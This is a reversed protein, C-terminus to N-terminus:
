SGHEDKDQEKQENIAKIVTEASAVETLIHRTNFNPKHLPLNYKLGKNLLNEEDTNLEISTLNCLRTHFVHKCSTNSTKPIQDDILRQLKNLQTTRMNYVVIEITSNIFELYHDLAAPHVNNLLQLHAGYLKSNLLSKKIYLSRLEEKIRFIEAHKKAKMDAISSGKFKIIAYNPIVKNKLCAKNFRIHLITKHLQTKINQFRRVVNDRSNNNM